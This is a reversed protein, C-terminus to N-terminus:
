IEYAGVAYLDPALFEFMLVRQHTVQSIISFTLMAM